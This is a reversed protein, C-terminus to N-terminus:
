VTGNVIAVSVQKLIEVGVLDAEGRGGQFKYSTVCVSKKVALVFVWCVVVSIIFSYIGSWFLEKAGEMNNLM